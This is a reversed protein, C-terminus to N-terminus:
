LNLLVLITYFGFVFNVLQYLFAQLFPSDKPIVQIDDGHEVVDPPPPALFTSAIWYVILVTIVKRFTNPSDNRAEASTQGLWNMQMRTLVQAMLIQPFIWANLFSPHCPGFTCCDCLGDKWVGRPSTDIPTVGVGTLPTAEGVAEPLSTM